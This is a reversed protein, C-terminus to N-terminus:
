ETLLAREISADSTDPEAIVVSFEKRLKEIRRRNTGLDSYGIRSASRVAIVGPVQFFFEVDDIFGLIPTRFDARLYLNPERSVIIADEHSRLLKELRAYALSQKATYFIPAVKQSDPTEPHSNVCNPTEPCPSLRNNQVGLEPVHHMCGSLFTIIALISLSTKLYACKLM